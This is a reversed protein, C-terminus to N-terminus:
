LFFDISQFKKSSFYKSQYVMMDKGDVGQQQVFQGQQPNMQVGYGGQQMGGQGGGRGGGRFGGPGGRSGGRPAGRSGGGRNFQFQQQQQQQQQGM